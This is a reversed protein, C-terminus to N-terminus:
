APRRTEGVQPGFFRDLGRRSLSPGGGWTFSSSPPWIQHIAPRIDAPHAFKGNEETALGFVQVVLHNISFSSLYAHVSDPDTAVGPPNLTLGRQRYIGPWQDVDHFRATFVRVSEPPETRRRGMEEILTKPILRNHSHTEQLVMAKVTAWAAIAVQGEKHLVRGSGVIMGSAYGKVRNELKSMWDSNCNECVAKVTMTFIPRRFSKTPRDHGEIMHMVVDGEKQPFLRRIWSSWIHENRM